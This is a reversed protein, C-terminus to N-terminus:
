QVRRSLYPQDEADQGTRNLKGSSKGFSKQCDALAGDCEECELPRAAGRTYHIADNSFLVAGTEKGKGIHVDKIRRYHEEM